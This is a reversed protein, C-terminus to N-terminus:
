HVSAPGTPRIPIQKPKAAEVKPVHLTLVGQDYTAMVKDPDIETPLGITRSMEGEYRERRVYFGAKEPKEEPKITPKLTARITLADRMATIKVDEPKVGPLPVEIVYEGEMELIDVPFVRGVLGFRMPRIFSDELLQNMADRLPTLGEFPEWRTLAM